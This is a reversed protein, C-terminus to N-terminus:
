NTFYISCSMLFKTKKNTMQCLKFEFYFVNSRNVYLIEISYGKEKKRAFSQSLNPETRGRYIDEKPSGFCSLVMLVLSESKGDSAM